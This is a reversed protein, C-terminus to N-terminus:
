AAAAPARAGDSDTDVVAHSAALGLRQSTPLRSIARRRPHSRSAALYYAAIWRLTYFVDALVAGLGANSGHDAIFVPPPCHVYVARAYDLCRLQECHVPLATQYALITIQFEFSWPM